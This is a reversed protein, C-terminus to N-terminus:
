ILWAAIGYTNFYGLEQEFAVLSLEIRCRSMFSNFDLYVHTSLKSFFFFFLFNCLVLAEMFISFVLVGISLQFYSQSEMALGMHTM